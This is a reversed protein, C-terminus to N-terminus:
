QRNKGIIQDLDDATISDFAQYKEIKVTGKVLAHLLRRYGDLHSKLKQDELATRSGFLCYSPLYIMGTLNAMQEIPQLLERMTFRHFGEACYGERNGGATLACLMLKGKLANGEDGYAFGYELVLDQWEKLISPTSYWFLPFQFVVVNNKILREQEKDIDIQYRPYEGYLDVTTVGSVNSAVHYLPKNVESRDQSPHAFLVLVRNKNYGM